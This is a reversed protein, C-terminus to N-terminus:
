CLFNFQMYNRKNLNSTIVITNHDNDKIWRMWCTSLLCSTTRIWCKPLYKWAHSRQIKNLLTKKCVKCLYKVINTINVIFDHAWAKANDDFNNLIVDIYNDCGCAYTGGDQKVKSVECNDCITLQFCWIWLMVINTSLVHADFFIFSPSSVCM